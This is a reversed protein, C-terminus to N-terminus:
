KMEYSLSIPVPGGTAKRKTLMVRKKSHLVVYFTLLVTKGRSKLIFYTKYKEAYNPSSTAMLFTIQRSM